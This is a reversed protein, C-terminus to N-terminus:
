DVIKQKVIPYGKEDWLVLGGELAKINGPSYGLQRLELAMRASDSGDECLCYIMVQKDMPLAM